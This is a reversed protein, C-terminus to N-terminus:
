FRLYASVDGDVWKPDEEILERIQLYREHQEPSQANRWYAERNDFVTLAMASDPDSDRWLVYSAIHGEVPFDGFAAYKEFFAEVDQKKGPRARFIM